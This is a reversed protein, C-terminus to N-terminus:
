STVIATWHHTGFVHKNTFKNKQHIVGFKQATMNIHRVHFLWMNKTLYQTREM